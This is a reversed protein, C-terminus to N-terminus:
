EAAKALAEAAVELSDGHNAIGDTFKVSKRRSTSESRLQSPDEPPSQSREAPPVNSSNYSFGAQPPTPAPAHVVVSPPPPGGTSGLGAVVMDAEPKQLAGLFTCWTGYPPVSQQDPFPNIGNSPAASVNEDAERTRAAYPDINAGSAFAENYNAPPGQPPVNGPPPPFTTPNYGTPNPPPAYQGGPAAYQPQATYQNPM